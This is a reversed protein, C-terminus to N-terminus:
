PHMGQPGLYMQRHVWERLAPDRRYERRHFSYGRRTAKAMRALPYAANRLRVWTILGRLFKLVGHNGRGTVKKERFEAFSNSIGQNFSRQCFYEVTLRERPVLHGVSAGPHYFAALGQNDIFRSVHTEGDGRFRILEKPMGDPHFGGAALLVSKLISFNCGYVKYPSIRRPNDGLDLISLPGCVREGFANPSWLREIWEPPTEEFVPLNKGGALVVAPDAFAQYISKLWEPSAEIDDDGYVLIEAQACEMGLNRGVHLGPHEDYLRTFHTFLSATKACVEATRDTSGNDVVIVEFEDKPFTQGAFSVLARGLTLARNRTPIIVSLKIM